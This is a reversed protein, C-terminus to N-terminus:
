HKIIMKRTVANNGCSLNYFYIGDKMEIGNFTYTNAGWSANILEEYVKEGLINYVEFKYSTAIPANFHIKTITSFPNPINQMVFFDNTNIISIGDAPNVVIRYEALTDYQPLTMGMVSATTTIPITLNHIGEDGEVPTAQILMCNIQGGPFCNNATNAQYSFGTLAPNVTITDVCISVITATVPFGSYTVSTDAPVVATITTSYPQGVTAEPLNDVQNPYMGSSTLLTNPTCQTNAYVFAGILLVLIYIKKM